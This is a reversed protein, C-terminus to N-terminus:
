HCDLKQAVCVSPFTKLFNQLVRMNKSFCRWNYSDTGSFSSLCKALAMASPRDLHNSAEDLMLCNYPRLM